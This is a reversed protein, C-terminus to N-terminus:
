EIARDLWASWEADSLIYSVRAELWETNGWFGWSAQFRLWDVLASEWHKVLVDWPYKKGSSAEIQKQYRELLVKEGNQMPLKDPIASDGLMRLPVSCTFLKALDCVGLGLGVYQFDYFAVQDGSRTTFLNESKVDGHILTVYNSLSGQGDVRPALAVAVREALSLKEGDTALCLAQSWESDEEEMLFAYESRRTALYTYGGNLWVGDISGEKGRKVEDLPPRALDERDFKEVRAWWFGHFKALWNLAAHVQIENLESRKEGAVPFGARLDTLLMATVNPNGSSVNSNASSTSDSKISALCTAVPIDAPMQNALYTYFYQEIHYSLIKRVHGEDGSRKTSPPAIYKLIWSQFELPTSNDSELPTSKESSAISTVGSTSSSDFVSAPPAICIPSSDLISKSALDPSAIVRCIQGYGAWLTQIPQWSVLSLSKQALLASAISQISEAASM